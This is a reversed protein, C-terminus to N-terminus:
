ATKEQTLGMIELGAGEQILAAVFAGLDINDGDILHTYSVKDEDYSVEGFTEHRLYVREGVAKIIQWPHNFCANTFRFDIEYKLNEPNLLRGDHWNKKLLFVLEKEVFKSYAEGTARSKYIRGITM